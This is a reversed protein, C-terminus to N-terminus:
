DLEVVEGVVYPTAKQEEYPRKDVALVTKITKGHRAEDDVKLFMYSLLCLYYERRIERNGFFTLIKRMVMKEQVHLDCARPAIDTM